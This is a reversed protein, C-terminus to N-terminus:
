LYNSKFPIRKSFACMLHLLVPIEIALVRLFIEKKRVESTIHRQHLHIPWLVTQNALNQSKGTAVCSMLRGLRHSVDDLLHISLSM